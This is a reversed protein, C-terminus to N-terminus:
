AAGAKTRLDELAARQEATLPLGIEDLWGEFSISLRAVLKATVSDGSDDVALLRAATEPSM